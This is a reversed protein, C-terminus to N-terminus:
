RMVKTPFRPIITDIRRSEQRWVGMYLKRLLRDRTSKTYEKVIVRFTMVPNRIPSM